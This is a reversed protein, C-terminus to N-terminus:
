KVIYITTHVRIKSFSFKKPCNEWMISCRFSDCFRGVLEIPVDRNGSHFLGILNNSRASTMKMQRLIGHNNNLSSTFTVGLYKISGTHLISAYNINLFPLSLRKTTFAVCFSQLANFNVDVVINYNHCIQLLEQLAISM